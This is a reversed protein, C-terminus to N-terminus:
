CMQFIICFSHPNIENAFTYSLLKEDPGEDKGNPVDNLKVKQSIAVCVHETM